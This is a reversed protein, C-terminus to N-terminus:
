KYVNRWYARVTPVSLHTTSGDAFGYAYGFLNTGSELFMEEWDNGIAGLSPNEINNLYVGASDCELRLVDGSTFKNPIDGYTTCSDAIFSNNFLQNYKLGASTDRQFFGFTIVYGKLTSLTDDKYSYAAQSGTKFTITDGKKEISTNLNAQTYHKTYVVTTIKKRKGKVKKYRTIRRSTTWAHNFGYNTNYYSLDITVTKVTYGNVIYDLTGTTGTGAKTIIIGALITSNATNWICAAFGGRQINNDICLRQSYNFRFDTWGYASSADPGLTRNITPGHYPKDTAAAGYTTGTMYAALIGPTGDLNIDTRPVYAATNSVWLKSVDASYSIFKRNELTQSKAYMTANGDLSDPDGAQLINEDDDFFTFFGCDGDAIAGTADVTGAFEAEIYPYSDQTGNYEVTLVGDAGTTSHQEISYKFPNACTIEFTGHAIGRQMTIDPTGSVTGIYFKDEEDHFIIIANEIDLAKNLADLKGLTDTSNTGEILFEVKLTREAYRKGKYILGDANAISTTALEVAPMERGTVSLASYGSIVNELYEGDVCKYYTKGSTVTTDSTRAYDGNTDLEFYWNEHPNGTPSTISDPNMNEIKVGFMMAQNTIM